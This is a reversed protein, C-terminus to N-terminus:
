GDASHEVKRTGAIAILDNYLPNYKWPLSLVHSRWHGRRTIAFHRAMPAAYGDARRVFRGQELRMFWRHLLTDQEPAVKLIDVLLCTGGPNLLPALAALETDLVDDPIHHTCCNVLVLDFPGSARLAERTGVFAAAPYLRRAYDILRFDIDYGVYGYGNRLFLPAFLATGCGFDLVRCSTKPLDLTALFNRLQVRQECKNLTLVRQGLDNILAHLM